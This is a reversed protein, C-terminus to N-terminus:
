ISMNHKGQKPTFHTLGLQRESARRELRPTDQEELLTDLTDEMIVNNDFLQEYDKKEEQTVVIM